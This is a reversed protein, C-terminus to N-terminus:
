SHDVGTCVRQFVEDVGLRHTCFRRPKCSGCPQVSQLARVGTGLPRWHTPDTDAFLALGSCGLAGALHSIGSDNGVFYRARELVAAVRQIPENYLQLDSHIAHRHPQELEAPGAIAVVRLGRTKCRQALDVMGTWNKHESGSGPHIAIFPSPPTIRDAWERATDSIYIHGERSAPETAADVDLGIQVCRLFYGSAHEQPQFDRFAFTRAQSARASHSIRVINRRFNADNHGTWSLVFEPRGWFDLCKEDPVTRFLAAVETRDISIAKFIGPELLSTVTPTAVLRVTSRLYRQIAKAAPLFCLFDGLAGPFFVLPTSDTM